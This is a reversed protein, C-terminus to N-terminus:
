VRHRATISRSTKAFHRPNHFSAVRIQQTSWSINEIILAACPESQIKHNRSLYKAVFIGDTKCSERGFPSDCDRYARSISQFVFRYSSGLKVEGLVATDM